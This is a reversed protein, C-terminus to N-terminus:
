QCAAIQEQSSEHQKLFDFIIAAATHVAQEINDNELILKMLEVKNENMQNGGKICHSHINEIEMINSHILITLM